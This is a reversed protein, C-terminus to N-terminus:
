GPGEGDDVSDFFPLMQWYYDYGLDYSAEKLNSFKHHKYTSNSGQTNRLSTNDAVSFLVSGQITHINDGVVVYKYYSVVGSCKHRSNM